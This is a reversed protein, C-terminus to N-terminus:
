LGREFELNLPPFNLISSRMDLKLIFSGEETYSDIATAFATCFKEPSRPFPVQREGYCNREDFRLSGSEIRYNINNCGDFVIIEKELVTITIPNGTYKIPESSKLTIRLLNWDGVLYNLESFGISCKSAYVSHINFVFLSAIIWINLYKFSPKRM